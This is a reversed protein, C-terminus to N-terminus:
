RGRDDSGTRHSRGGDARARWGVADSLGQGDARSDRDPIAQQRSRFETRSKRRANADYTALQAIHAGLAQLCGARTFCRARNAISRHTSVRSTRHRLTPRCGRRGVRGAVIEASNAPRRDPNRASHRAPSRAGRGLSPECERTPQSPPRARRGDPPEDTSSTSLGPLPRPPPSCALSPPAKQSAWAIPSKRYRGATLITISCCLGNSSPCATSHETSSTPTASRPITPPSKKGQSLRIERISRRKRAIKAANVTIRYLCVDFRDVDRLAPLSRWVSVLAEQTADRADAPSGLIGLATRYVSDIRRRALEDFADADGARAREILAGDM